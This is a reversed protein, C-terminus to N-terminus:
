KTSPINLSPSQPLIGEHLYVQQVLYEYADWLESGEQRYKNILPQLIEWSHRLSAGWSDIIIDIPLMDYRVMTGVHDYTYCVIEAQHREIETWEDLPKARLSFILRRANRAEAQLLNFATTYVQAYVTTRLADRSEEQAKATRALEVRNATIEHRQLKLEEQQLFLAVIVGAFALGSFLADISGFLEGVQGRQIMDPYLLPIVIPTLAWLVLMAMFIGVVFIPSLRRDPTTSGTM